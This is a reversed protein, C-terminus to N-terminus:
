NLRMRGAGSAGPHVAPLLPLQHLPLRLCLLVSCVLGKGRQVQSWGRYMVDAFKLLLKTGALLEQVLPLLGLVWHCPAKGPPAPHLPLLSGHQGWRCMGIGLSPWGWWRTCAALSM